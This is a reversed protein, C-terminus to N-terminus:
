FRRLKIESKKFIYGVSINM